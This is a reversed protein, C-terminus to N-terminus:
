KDAFLFDCDCLVYWKIVKKKYYKQELTEFYKGAQVWNFWSDKVRQRMWEYQKGPILKLLGEMDYNM